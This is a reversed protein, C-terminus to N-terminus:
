INKLLESMDTAVISEIKQLPIYDFDDGFVKKIGATKLKNKSLQYMQDMNFVITQLQGMVIDMAEITMNEDVFMSWIDKYVKSYNEHLESNSADHRLDFDYSAVISLTKKFLPTVKAEVEAVAKEAELRVEEENM